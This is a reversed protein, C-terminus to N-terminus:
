MHLFQCPKSTIIDYIYIHIYLIHLIRSKTNSNTKNLTQEGRLIQEQDCVQLLLTDQLTRQGGGAARQQCQQDHGLATDCLAAQVRACLQQSFQGSVSLERGRSQLNFYLIPLAIDEELLIETRSM